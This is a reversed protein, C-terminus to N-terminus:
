HLFSCIARMSICNGVSSPPLIGQQVAKYQYVYAKRDDRRQRFYEWSWRHAKEHVEHRTVRLAFEWQSQAKNKNFQEESPRFRLYDRHRTYFHFLDLCSLVDRYQDADILFALESFTLECDVKASEKTPHKRLILKGEGSVPKLVYQHDSTHAQNDEESGKTRSILEAFKQNFLTPDDLNALSDSDTNFYVALSDLKTLKHVGTKPGIVFSEQWQEDTSVASLEALTFGVSFPHGPVSMKDEYRLHVNKIRLQLNDLIKNTMAAIFSENKNSEETPSDPSTPLASPSTLLLEANKLQEMKAAQKRRDDEEPDFKNEGAPIALLYIDDIM